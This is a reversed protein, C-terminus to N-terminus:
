VSKYLREIVDVVYVSDFPQLIGADQGNILNVFYSIMNKFADIAFTNNMSYLVKDYEGNTGDYLIEINDRTFNNSFGFLTDISVTGNVGLVKISTIDENINSSWDINFKLESGNIFYVEGKAWTEADLEFQRSENNINWQASNQKAQAITGQDLKVSKIQKDSLFNLGIDIVHTGIDILAGGGAAAKNTIWTGGRPIGSKRIWSVEAEKVEGILSVMESFKIIDERFRNVFAPLFIKNKAHALAITSEIDNKSLAVPKECLVHKGSNLAMNTYYTHTNNPTAIIVADLPQSLFRDINDFINPVHYKHQIEHAKRYDIDFIANVCADDMKAIIPLYAKEAIWGCGIIGFNIM